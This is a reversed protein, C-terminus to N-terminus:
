TDNFVIPPQTVIPYAISNLQRIANSNAIMSNRIYTTPKSMPKMLRFDDGIVFPALNLTVMSNVNSIVCEKATADKSTKSGSYVAGITFGLLIAIVAIIFTKFSKMIRAIFWCAIIAALLILITAM